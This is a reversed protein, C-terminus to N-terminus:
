PRVTFPTSFTLSDKGTINFYLATTGAPIVASVGKKDVTATVSQWSRKQWNSSDTTFCLVAKEIQYKGSLEAVATSGKIVTASNAPLTTQEGRVIKSAFAFIESQEWKHGHKSTITMSLLRPGKGLLASQQWIDLPFAPDNTGTVWLTPVQSSPLYISPDWKQKYAQLQKPTMAEFFQRWSPNSTNYLFGCGYVPVAFAWRHDLGIVASTIVGGWSIGHIGIKQQNIEPFSSLLSHARIVDAVAHYFWQERDALEIDGFTTIRAPGANEHWQRNPYSGSPLHGELDMAIAAFGHDVWAQVWAPFATGGGGHVCVVAPWGGPPPTGAPTKYYAFVKTPRAKYTIGEYFFSRFGPVQCSDSPYTRPTEKLQSLDWPFQSQATTILSGLTLMFLLLTKM